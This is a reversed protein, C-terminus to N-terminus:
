CWTEDYRSRRTVMCRLCFLWDVTSTPRRFSPPRQPYGQYSFTHVPSFRPRKGCLVPRLSANSGLFVSCLLHTPVSM